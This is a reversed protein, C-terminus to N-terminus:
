FISTKPNEPPKTILSEANDSNHSLKREQGPFKWMAGVYTEDYSLVINGKIKMEANVLLAVTFLLPTILFFSICAVELFSNKLFGM